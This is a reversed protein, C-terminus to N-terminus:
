QEIISEPPRPGSIPDAHRHDIKWGDDERRFVTTTRLAVPSLEDSGAIKVRLREIEFIYALDPTAAESIREWRLDEGDRLVSAAREVARQIEAKGRAPLGFPNALSAGDRESFLRTAPEADGATVLRELSRHYEEIAQDLDSAAVEVGGERCALMRRRSEFSGSERTM